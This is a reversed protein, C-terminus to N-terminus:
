LAQKDQDYPRLHKETARLDTTGEQWELVTALHGRGDDHRPWIRDAYVEVFAYSLRDLTPDFIDYRTEHPVQQSLRHLRIRGRRVKQIWDWSAHDFVHEWCFTRFATVREHDRPDLQLKVYAFGDAMTPEFHPSRHPIAISHLRLNFGPYTIKANFLFCHSQRHLTTSHSFFLFFQAFTKELTAVPSTSLSFLLPPSSRRSTFHSTLVFAAVHCLAQSRSPHVHYGLTSCAILMLPLGAAMLCTFGRESREWHFNISLRSGVAKSVQLGVSPLFALRINFMENM